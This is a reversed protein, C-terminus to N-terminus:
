CVNCVTCENKVMRENLRDDDAGPPQERHVNRKNKKSCRYILEPEGM